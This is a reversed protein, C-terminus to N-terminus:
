EPSFGPFNTSAIALNTITNVMANDVIEIPTGSDFTNNNWPYNNDALGDDFPFTLTLWESPPVIGSSASLRRM